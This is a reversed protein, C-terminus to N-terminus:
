LELILATNEMAASRARACSSKLIEKIHLRSEWVESLKGLIINEDETMINCIYPYMGLMKMIGPLRPSCTGVLPLLPVCMVAALINSHLRTGLFFDLSSMIELNEELSIDEKVFLVRDNHCMRRGIEELADRDDDGKATCNPLFVLTAGLKEVMYDAIVAM